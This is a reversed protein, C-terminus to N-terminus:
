FAEEKGAKVGEYDLYYTYNNMVESEPVEHMRAASSLSRRDEDRAKWDDSVASQPRVM